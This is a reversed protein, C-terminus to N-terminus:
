IPTVLEETNTSKRAKLKYKTIFFSIVASGIVTPGLWAVVPPLVANNVVLFATFAAINGAVMRAIHDYLWFNMDAPAQTYKRIDKAVLLLAISGFVVSIVNSNGFSSSTSGTLGSYVFYAAFAAMTLSILWDLQQPKQGKTLDKLYLVRYGSSVLYASFIGIILLFSSHHNPLVAMSVATVSVLMMAYFFVKGTFRHQKGGKRNAMSVPGSILSITGATIHLILLVTFLTEM